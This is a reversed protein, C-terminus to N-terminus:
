SGQVHSFPPAQQQLSEDAGDSDVSILSSGRTDLRLRSVAELVEVSVFVSLAALNGASVVHGAATNDLRMLEDLGEQSVIEGLEKSECTERLSDSMEEGTHVAAFIAKVGCTITAGMVRRQDAWNRWHPAICWTKARHRHFLGRRPSPDPCEFGAGEPKPDGTKLICKFSFEEDKKMWSNHKTTCAQCPSPCVDPDEINTPILLRRDKTEGRVDFRIKNQLEAMQGFASTFRDQADESVASALFREKFHFIRGHLSGGSSAIVEPLCMKQDAVDAIATLRMSLLALDQIETRESDGFFCTASNCRETLRDSVQTMESRLSEGLEHCSLRSFTDKETHIETQTAPHQIGLWESKNLRRSNDIRSAMAIGHSSLVFAIFLWSATQKQSQNAM